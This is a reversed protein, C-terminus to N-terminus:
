RSGGPPTAGRLELLLEQAEEYNPARELARLVARRAENRDGALLYARALRYEASARDVPDLAIIARRERVATGAAGAAEALTALEAHTEPEYPSIYMAQELSAIAGTTDGIATRAAALDLQARYDDDAIAVLAALEREAQRHDGRALHIAALTRYPAGQGTYEPFLDRAQEAAAIAAATDGAALRERAENLKAGFQGMGAVSRGSAGPTGRIAGFRPAFRDQVYANFRSDLESLEIKLVSQVAEATTMGDGYAAVLAPLAREGFQQEIMECVLSAQYYSLIIQEPFKPRMFGDNLSSVPALQGEAFASLFSPSLDAGWGPHARREELV